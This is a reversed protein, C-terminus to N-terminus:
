SFGIGCTARAQTAAMAGGLPLAQAHVTVRIGNDPVTGIGYSDNFQLYMRM